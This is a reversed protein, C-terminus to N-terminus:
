GANFLGIEVYRWLSGQVAFFAVMNKAHVPNLTSESCCEYHPIRDFGLGTMQGDYSVGIEGGKTYFFFPKGGLLQFGFVETTGLTDNLLAGDQYVQGLWEDPTAMVLELAWHGDFTWLGQLAPAPSPFGAPASFILTDGQLLSVSQAQTAPDTEIRALLTGAEGHVTLMPRFQDDSTIQQAVSQQREAAHRAMIEAQSGILPQFTMTDPNPPAALAYAEMTLGGSLTRIEGTMPSPSQPAPSKSDSPTTRSASSATSPSATAMAAPPSPGCAAALISAAVLTLRLRPFGSGVPLARHLSHVKHFRDCVTRYEPSM